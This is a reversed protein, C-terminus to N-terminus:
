ALLLLYSLAVVVVCAVELAAWIRRRATREAGPVVYGLAVGALGGGAHAVNDAPLFVCLVLAYVAWRTMQDRLQRGFRGGRRLGYGICLGILGFIAASAGAAGANGDWRWWASAAMGAVGTALYLLAFRSRGFLEEVLPGVSLLSSSNMLLHIAGLHLFNSTVLRWWEGEVLAGTSWAGLDDAVTGSLWWLGGLGTRRLAAGYVIVHVLTLVGTYLTAGTPLVWRAVRAVRNAAASALAAGCSPCAAAGRDAPHGCAPCVKHRYGVWAARRAAGERKRTVDDRLRNWRWRLRVRNTGFARLIADLLAM